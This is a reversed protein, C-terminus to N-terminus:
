SQATGNKREHYRRKFNEFVFERDYVVVVTTSGDKKIEQQKIKRPTYGELELPKAETTEGVAGSHSETVFVAGSLSDRHVVKYPTNKEKPLGYKITIVTSDDEAIPKQKFKRAVLGEVERAEAETPQDVVGQFEETGITEDTVLNVHKVTYLYHDAREGTPSMDSGGDEAWAPRPNCEDFVLVTTGDPINEFIWQSVEYSQAACGMTKFRQDFPHDNPEGYGTYEFRQCDDDGQVHHSEVYCTLFQSGNSADFRGHIRFAGKFSRSRPGPWAAKNDFRYGGYEYSQWPQNVGCFCNYGAIAKWGDDIWQVITTRCLDTDVAIFFTNVSDYVEAKRVIGLVYPDDPEFWDDSVPIALAARPNVLSLIGGAVLSAGAALFGRRSLM